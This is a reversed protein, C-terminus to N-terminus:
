FHYENKHNPSYYEKTKKSYSMKKKIQEEQKEKIPGLYPIMGNSFSGQLSM